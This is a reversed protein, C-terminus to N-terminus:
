NIVYSLAAILTTYFTVLSVLLRRWLQYICEYISESIFEPLNGSLEPLKGSGTRHSIGWVCRERFKEYGSNRGYYVDLTISSNAALEVYRYHNLGANSSFIRPTQPYTRWHTCQRTPFYNNNGILSKFVAVLFQMKEQSHRISMCTCVSFKSRSWSQEDIVAFLLCSSFRLQQQSLRDYQTPFKPIVIVYVIDRSRCTRWTPLIYAVYRICEEEYPIAVFLQRSYGYTFSNQHHFNSPKPDTYPTSLPLIM